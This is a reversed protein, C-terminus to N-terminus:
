SGDFRALYFRKKGVKVVMTSRSGLSTATVRHEVDDLRTGNLRVAGQDVLRRAEGNSRAAGVERLLDLVGLGTDDLARRALTVSPADAFVEALTADDLDDLPADAFLAETAQEAAAVGGDGHIVRTAERALTRQALRAGPDRGHDGVLARIDDLPLFTFLRLFREVDADATNLWYQFYAYPSTMQPDLWIANGASKGFKAGDATTMLPWTLGYAEAGTVRRILDVGAVINGWQDSGGCQLVCGHERYLHLFDYAQLLQYSFETYSIGQERSDLRRRVSERSVMANVSFHKGVDRLVELFGLEGLWDHNDLLLGREGDLDLVASLQGRIGALHRELTADDLLTREADRGSPDGIRGTAGGAIAIARHGASQLWAMAMIGVLNGAHLSPATPDFGVYFTAPGEALVAVLASEDTVDQVFGRARLLELTDATM